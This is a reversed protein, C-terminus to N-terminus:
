ISTGNVVKTIKFYKMGSPMKWSVDDGERFGIMAAAMPTLISIKKERIDAEAPLVIRFTLVKDDALNLVSVVSNIRITNPPFANDKVIIARDVEHGLSMHDKKMAAYASFRKLTNFDSESM